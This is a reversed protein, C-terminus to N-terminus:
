IHILSLENVMDETVEVGHWTFNEKSIDSIKLEPKLGIEFDFSYDGPNNFDLNNPLEGYPLPQGFITPNEKVLYDNLEKEALRLVQDAFLESGHMKKIIGAPVMGKRFGPVNAKKAFDKLGKEFAPMYDDKSLKVTLKDHLEGINERTVSAM